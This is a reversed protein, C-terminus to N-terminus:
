LSKQKTQVGQMKVNEQEEKSIFELIGLMYSKFQWIYTGHGPLVPMGEVQEHSVFPNQSASKFLWSQIWSQPGSFQM